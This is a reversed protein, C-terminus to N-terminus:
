IFKLERVWINRYSIPESPDGHDQLLIPGPGHKKYSPNGRYTTAGKVEGNNQVLVGNHIATIRAPSKLSGDDNFRPATWIVDYTQWEGPKRSANALPILQKYISGVQGNVYTKNNYGDLVQLEYGSDGKGTAAFFIGSNGRAQGSGTINAPIRYELHFQFDTFSRKTRIPGTGKKVTIVGDALTWQAPGNPEKPSMWEDLNKGNFLIIADSPPDGPKASPEVIKPVPEWVETLEPKPLNEDQTFGATAALLCLLIILNSKM